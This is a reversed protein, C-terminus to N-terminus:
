RGPGADRRWRDYDMLLIQGERMLGEPARRLPFGAPVEHRALTEMLFSEWGQRDGRMWGALFKNETTRTTVYLGKIGKEYDYIEFFDQKGNASMWLCQRRGYWAVAWPIDSMLTEHPALWRAIQQVRPPYYPPYALPTPYPPLMAVGLPLSMVVAFATWAAYRARMSPFEFSDLIVFFVGTGFILVLPSMLVLLNETTVEPSDAWAQTKGMAQVPILTALAIIAFWRLRSLTPNKFRLLVGVLFFAGVWSGGMRPLDMQVVERVNVVFKRVFEAMPVQSVLEGHLSRQLRDGSFPRTQEVAAYGATGFPTGSVVVNRTVWPAVVLLAVGAAAGALVARRQSLFLLLFATVPVLLFLCAYRTLATLGLVLGAALAMGLQWRFSRGNRAGHELRMLLLMLVLVLDMLLVTSLGSVSLRWYFETTAFLVAAVAAVTSDFCSRGIRYVLLMGGLLLLQNFITIALDRRAVTFSKSALMDEEPVCKLVGALLVPYVPPNALDPHNRNLLPKQDPRHQKILHISFPRVSFTTYGRGDAINQALQAADMAEPTALNRYAVTDYLVAMATFAIFVLALRMGRAGRGADLSHIWEQLKFVIM